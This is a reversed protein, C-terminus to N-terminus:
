SPPFKDEFGSDMIRITLDEMNPLVFMSKFEQKLKYEIWETVHTLRVNREGLKPKAKLSLFPNTHFGLWLRNSPPPPINAALTGNLRVVEVSLEIPLNSFKEVARQVVKTEAAKQVWKSKAVKELMNLIKKGKSNKVKAAWGQNEQESTPSASSTMSRPEADVENESNANEGGSASGESSVSPSRQDVFSMPADDWGEEEVDSEASSVDSYSSDERSFKLVVEDGDSKGQDTLQRLYYELNVMTEITLMIGGDYDVKLDVWLGRNDQHLNDASQIKPLAHGLKIDTVKLYRIFPPLKMRSIKNQIRNKAKTNWYESKWVDWFLRGLLANVWTLQAQSSPKQDAGILQAMYYPFNAQTNFINEFDNGHTRPKLVKEISYYWEEKARSTPSFLFMEETVPPLVFTDHAKDGDPGEKRQKEFLKLYIPYKKAWLRKLTLTEPVLEIEGGNGLDYDKSDGFHKSNNQALMSSRKIKPLDDEKPFFFTMAHGSLRVYVPRIHDLDSFDVPELPNYQSAKFFWGELDNQQYLQYPQLIESPAKKLLMMEREHDLVDRRYKEEDSMEPTLLWMLAFVVFFTLIGGFVFGNLFSSSPLMFYLFVIASMLLMNYIPIETYKVSEEQTVPAPVESSFDGFGIPMLLRSSNALASALFEKTKPLEVHRRGEQSSGKSFPARQEVEKKLLSSLYVASHVVPNDKRKTVTPSTSTRGNSENPSSLSTDSDEFHSTKFVIEGVSSESPKQQTPEEPTLAESGNNILPSKPLLSLTNNYLSSLISSTGSSPSTADGNKTDEPNENEGDRSPDPQVDPSKEKRVISIEEDSGNADDRSFRISFLDLKRQTEDQQQGTTEVKRNRTPLPPRPPPSKKSIM